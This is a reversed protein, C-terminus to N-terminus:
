NLYKKLLADFDNKLTETTVKAKRGRTKKPIDAAQIEGDAPPGAQLMHHARERGADTLEPEFVDFIIFMALKKLKDVNGQM